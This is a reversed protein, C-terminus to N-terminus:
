FDERPSPALAQAAAAVAEPARGSHGAFAMLLTESAALYDLIAAFFGPAAAAQRLNVPGLGYVDVFRALRDPDSAIWGLAEVAM